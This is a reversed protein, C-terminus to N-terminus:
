IAAPPDIWGLNGDLRRYVFNVRGHGAHKFALVPAGSMDLELVADGVTMRKLDTTSEAIIVPHYAGAAPEEVDEDSPAAIIYSAAAPVPAADRERGLHHDKLRRKYRRLRKELHEAANDASGYAEQAHGEAHVTSGSSLHLVCETRYGSGERSVTVHGSASGDFYKGLAENVRTTVRARLAEGVDLGQGSVRFPM